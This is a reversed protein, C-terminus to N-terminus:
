IPIFSSFMVSCKNNDNGSVAHYAPSVNLTSCKILLQVAWVTEKSLNAVSLM